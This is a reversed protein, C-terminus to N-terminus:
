TLCDVALSVDPSGVQVVTLTTLILQALNLPFFYSLSIECFIMFHQSINELFDFKMYDLSLM